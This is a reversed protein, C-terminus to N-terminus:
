CSVQEFHKLGEDEDTDPPLTSPRGIPAIVSTHFPMPNPMALPVEMPKRQPLQIAPSPASVEAHSLVRQYQSSKWSSLVLLFCNDKRTRFFSFGGTHTTTAIHTMPLSELMSNSMPVHLPAKSQKPQPEPPSQRERREAPREPEEARNAHSNTSTQVPAQPEAAPLAAHPAEESMRVFEPFPFVQTDM